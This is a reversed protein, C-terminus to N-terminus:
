RENQYKTEEQTNWNIFVVKEGLEFFIVRSVDFNIKWIWM